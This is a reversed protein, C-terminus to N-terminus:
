RYGCEKEYEVILDRNAIEYSNLLSEEFDGPSISPVYWEKLNFYEQLYEDDFKRGHRAYIENRALRCQEATFEELESKSIYRVDSGVLIYEQHDAGNVLADACTDLLKESEAFVDNEWRYYESTNELDYNTTKSSDTVDPCYSWRLLRDGDFYLRHSDSGEYYAFFLRDGDYYFYRAYDSGSYDKKVVIAKIQDQESYAMIGEDIMKIDYSNSSIGNVINDCKNRIELVLVEVDIGDAYETVSAEELESEPTEIEEHVSNNGETEKLDTEMKEKRDRDFIGYQNAFYYGIFVVLSLAIVSIFGIATKVVKSGKAKANEKIVLVNATPLVPTGCQTCFATGPKLVSGCEKCKM